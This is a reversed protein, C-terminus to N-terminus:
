ATTINKQKRWIRKPVRGKRNPTLLLWLAIALLLAIASLIVQPM